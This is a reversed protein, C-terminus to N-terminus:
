GEGGLVSSSARASSSGPPWRSGSSSVSACASYRTGLRMTICLKAYEISPKIAMIIASSTQTM